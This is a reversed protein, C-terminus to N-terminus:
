GAAVAMSELLWHAEADRDDLGAAVRDCVAVAQALRQHFGLATGFLLGYATRTADDGAAAVAAEFHPEWGPQGASYVALGLDLLVGAAVEPSPPEPERKASTSREKVAISYAIVILM